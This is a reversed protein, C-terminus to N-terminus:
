ILEMCKVDYSYLTFEDGINMDQYDLYPALIEKDDNLLNYPKIEKLISKFATSASYKSPSNNYDRIIFVKNM